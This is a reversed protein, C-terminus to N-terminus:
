VSVNVPSTAIWLPPASSSSAASASCRSACGRRRDAQHEHRRLVVYVRLPRRRARLQVVRQIDRRSQAASLAAQANLREAETRADLKYQPMAFPTLPASPNKLPKTAVWADVAPKFETRFRKFYFDSLQTQKQAYANVWPTFTAVDIETQTKALSPPRAGVCNQARERPGGSEGPRWEM